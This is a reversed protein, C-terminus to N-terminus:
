DRRRALGRRVIVGLGLLGSGLLVMNASEPVESRARSSSVSGSTTPSSAARADAQAIVASAVCLALAITMAHRKNLLAKM